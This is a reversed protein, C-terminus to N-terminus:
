KGASTVRIMCSAATSQRQSRFGCPAQWTTSNALGSSDGSRAHRDDLASWGTRLMAAGFMPVRPPRVAPFDVATQPGVPVFRTV